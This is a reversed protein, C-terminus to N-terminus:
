SWLRRLDAEPDQVVKCASDFIMTARRDLDYGDWGPEGTRAFRLWAQQMPQAVVHREDGGGTFMEAGPHHLTDFVFPIELAHCSGLVGGFATSAWEFRYMWTPNGNTVRATAAHIAPQHFGHETAIMSAVQGWTAHPDAARYAAVIEEARHAGVEKIVRAAVTTEDMSANAPDFTTFMRMEDRNTGILLPIGAAISGERLADLVDAHLVLGDVTPAFATVGDPPAEVPGQAALVEATSRDLLESPDTIGLTAFLQRAAADARERSRFQGFSASQAIVKHFLGQAFPATLIALVAGGGASEGFITVNHPDGGFAEINDRVWNLVAIQDLLGLNGSGAFREGGLDALHCFGFSGLRYNATVIVVDGQAALSDGQYWPNSGSGSVYAGGHIWVMVPRRGDDVSPTVVNLFLCDESQAPLDGALLMAEMSGNQPAIAGFTLADRVGAWSPYPQPPRFRLDDVPAAAYPIGKFTVM